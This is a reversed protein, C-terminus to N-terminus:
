IPSEKLRMLYGLWTALPHLVFYLLFLLIYQVLTLQRYCATFVIGGLIYDIQDFPFWSQGPAIGVQRKFFSKVADGVLAGGAALTGLLFPNISTYDMPVFRRILPITSYLYIQLYVTLIGMVIGSVLGRVTKHDGFVRKGRFTAYCDLPFTYKKLLPIKAVLIPAANGLAAPLFFWLIFLLDKVVNM